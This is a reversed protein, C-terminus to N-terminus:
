PILKIEDFCVDFDVNTDFAFAISILNGPDFLATGPARYGWSQQALSQWPVFQPQNDTTTTLIVIYGSYCENGPVGGIDDCRGCPPQSYPNQLKLIFSTPVASRVIFSIGRYASVDVSQIQSILAAAVDAGWVNHGAGKFHMGNGPTGCSEITLSITGAGDTDRAWIGNPMTTQLAFGTNGEFDSLLPTQAPTPDPYSPNCYTVAKGTGGEPVSGGTGGRGGIGTGGSGAVGGGTTVTTVVSGGSGATGGDKTAGGFGGKGGGTGGAGAFSGGVGGSGGSGASGGAGAGGTTTVTPGSTASGATGFTGGTSGTVAGGFGTSSASVSTTSGGTGSSGAAPFTADQDQFVIERASCSVITLQAAAVLHRRLSM